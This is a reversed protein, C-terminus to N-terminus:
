GSGSGTGTRPPAAAPERPRARSPGRGPAPSSRAALREGVLLGVLPDALQLVLQGSLGPTRRAGAAPRSPGRRVPSCPATARPQRAGGGGRARALQGEDDRHEQERRPQQLRLSEIRAGIWLARSTAENQHIPTTINSCKRRSYKLYPSRRRSGSSGSTGRASAGCRPGAAPPRGAGAAGISSPLALRQRTIQSSPIGASVPAAM